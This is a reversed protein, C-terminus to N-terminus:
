KQWYEKMRLYLIESADYLDKDNNESIVEDVKNEIIKYLNPQKGEQNYATADKAFEVPNCWFACFIVMLNPMKNVVVECMKKFVEKMSHKDDNFVLKSISIANQENYHSEKLVSTVTDYLISVCNCLDEESLEDMVSKIFGESKMLRLANGTDEYKELGYDVTEKLDIMFDAFWYMPQFDKYMLVRYTLKILIEELYSISKADKPYGPLSFYKQCIKDMKKLLRPDEISENIRYYRNLINKVSTRVINHLQSETLRLVRNKM